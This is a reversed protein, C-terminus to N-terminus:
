PNIIEKAEEWAHDHELLRANIFERAAQIMGEREAELELAQPPDWGQNLVSHSGKTGNCLRCALYWNLPNNEVAPHKRVSLM